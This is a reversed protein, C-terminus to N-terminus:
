RISTPLSFGDLSFHVNFTLLHQPSIIYQFNTFSNFGQRKTIDNPWPLGRVIQKNMFYTFSESM